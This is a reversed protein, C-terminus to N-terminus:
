GPLQLHMSHVGGAWLAVAGLGASRRVSAVAPTGAARTPPPFGFLVCRVSRQAPAPLSVVGTHLSCASKRAVCEFWLPRGVTGQEM